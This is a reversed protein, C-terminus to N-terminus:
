KKIPINTLQRGNNWIAYRGESDVKIKMTEVKGFLGINGGLDV